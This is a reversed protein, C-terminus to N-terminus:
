KKTRLTLIFAASAALTIIIFWFANDYKGDSIDVLYGMVPAAVVGALQGGFNVIGSARGMINASITHMLIGWFIGMAFFMFLSAMCQYIVTMTLGDAKFMFYLFLAAIMSAAIYIWNRISTFKDSVYGGMLTGVAGFLYPVSGWVGIQALTLGRADKLYSPLWSTFGWFTIDFLFWIVALQWLEVRKLIDIFPITEGAQQTSLKAAQEAEDAELEKIEEQTIVPCDRYNDRCYYRIGFAVAIGPIGLLVFVWRWGLAAIIAAAVFTAVAPGLTNVTSQIATARGREKLPFYTSICKWSSAPFSGEGIGFLFRVCLMVVFASVIGINFALGTLSTFISWWIIAFFMVKRPGFKDALFGGPIQFGAYSLFFASIIWGQTGKDLHFEEGIFPLSISMLMRDLFSMLWALWIFALITYRAKWQIKQPELIRSIM